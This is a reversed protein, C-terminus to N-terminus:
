EGYKALKAKLEEIQKKLDDPSEESESEDSEMEEESEEMEPEESGELEPVKEIVDEAKELGEKLSKKDKAMVTVKQMPKKFVSARDEDMESMLDSLVSGKARKEVDSLSKGEQKKKMVLKDLKSYDM